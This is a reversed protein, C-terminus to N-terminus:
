DGTEGEDRLMRSIERAFGAAIGKWADLKAELQTVESMYCTCEGSEYKAVPCRKDHPIRESLKIGM